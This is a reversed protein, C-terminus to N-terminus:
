RAAAGRATHWAVAVAFFGAADAALQEAMADSDVQSLHVMPVHPGAAYVVTHLGGLDEAAQGCVRGAADRDLLDLEYSREGVEVPRSRHTVAVRAGREILMEAIARGIGGSGGVVLAGGDRGVFDTTM